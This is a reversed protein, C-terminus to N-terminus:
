RPGLDVNFKTALTLLKPWALEEHWECDRLLGNKMQEAGAFSVRRKVPYCDVCERSFQASGSVYKPTLSVPM